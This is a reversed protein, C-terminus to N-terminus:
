RSKGAPSEREGLRLVLESRIAGDDDDAAGVRAALCRQRQGSLAVVDVEDNPASLEPLLHRPIQDVPDFVFVGDLTAPVPDSSCAIMSCVPVPV